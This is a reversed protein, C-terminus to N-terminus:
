FKKPVGEVMFSVVIKLVIYFRWIKSVATIDYFTGLEGRHAGIRVSSSCFDFSYFM